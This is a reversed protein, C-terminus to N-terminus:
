RTVPVFKICVPKPVEVSDGTPILKGTTQDIKFVIVSDADQNAVLLFHGTPDINFNRPTKIGATENQVLTLKGTAEDISFVSISNHGRNSGYLFKGSPHVVVEATSFDTGKAGEPLTSITQKAEMTGHEADYALVTLTLAIENIIYAFKGNPHFTFHRPGSGPPLAVSPPDNPTLTGKLPDFRYVFLKDCGLDAAFAFKDAKDLNISHAHPEGQRQKDTSSGEHQIVASAMGLRGDSGIPLVAVSGGTYNAVLADKGSPDIAIFCPGAGGSSQQNLLNLAGTKPDLSYASVGGTRMRGLDAHEGVAFLLPGTPHLALFSPNHAEAAVSAQSLKGTTADFECRYIGKSQGGSYTGVFVWFRGPVPKAPSRSNSVTDPTPSLTAGLAFLGVVALHSLSNM